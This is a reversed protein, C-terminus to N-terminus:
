DIDDGINASAALFLLDIKELVAERESQMDAVIRAADALDQRPGFYSQLAEDLISSPPVHRVIAAAEVLAWLDPAIRVRQQLTAAM